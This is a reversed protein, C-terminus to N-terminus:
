SAIRDVSLKPYRSDGRNTWTWRIRYGGAEYARMEDPDLLLELTRRASAVTGAAAKEEERGLYVLEAAEIFEPDTIVLDAHAQGGRCRGFFQCFTRCHDYHHDQPADEGHEKAYLVDAIWRDAAHIVDMSFPEQEVYCWNAQGARDIWVNRVTGSPSVLGEQMAGLYYIQRQFQQQETSGTRRLRILDAEDGVTKTDTVSPEGPNIEDAHGVLVLGSPMTVELKREILLGPVSAARAAAVLDHTAHGQEAQRGVPFDTPSVGRLKFLAKSSCYGVDSVGIAQQRSRPRMAAYADLSAMYSAAYADPSLHM